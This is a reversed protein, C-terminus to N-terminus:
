AAAPTLLTTIQDYLWTIGTDREFREHRYLQVDISPLTFPLTLLRFEGGHNFREAISRPFIVALDTNRIVEPAVTFHPLRVVFNRDLGHESLMREALYHGTTNSSAYLYHLRNLVDVSPTDERVPHDRRVLCVSDDNFLVRRRCEEHLGPLYGLAIDIEGARMAMGLAEVSLQTVDLRVGPAEKELLALLAPLLYYASMDSMSLRFTRQVRQPDFDGHEQLARDILSFAAEVPDHLRKAATTPVMAHAAGSPARVFLPDDFLTRLRRLAHSVASQTLGLREGALTLNGTDWITLFVRLLNLDPIEHFSPHNMKM